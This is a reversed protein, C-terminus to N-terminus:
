NAHPEETPTPLTGFIEGVVKEAIALKEKLKPECNLQHEHMQELSVRTTGCYCCVWDDELNVYYDVPM